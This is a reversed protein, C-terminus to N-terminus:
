FLESSFTFRQQLHCGVYKGTLERDSQGVLFKDADLKKSLKMRDEKVFVEGLVYYIACVSINTEDQTQQFEISHSDWIYVCVVRESNMNQDNNTYGCIDCM